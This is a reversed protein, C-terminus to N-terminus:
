AIANSPWERDGLSVKPYVIKANKRSRYIAQDVIHGILTKLSPCRGVILAIRLDGRVWTRYAPNAEQCTFGCKKLLKQQELDKTM